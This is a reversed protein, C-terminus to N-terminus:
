DASKSAEFSTMFVIRGAGKTGLTITGEPDQRFTFTPPAETDPYEVKAFCPCHKSNRKCRRKRKKEKETGTKRAPRGSHQCAYMHTTGKSSKRTTRRVLKTVTEREKRTKWLEFAEWNSFHIDLVTFDSCEDSHTNECHVALEINNPLREGCAPCTVFVTKVQRDESPESQTTTAKNHALRRHKRLGGDTFYVKGCLECKVEDLVRYKARKIARRVENVEHESCFHFRRLHAYLNSLLFPGSKCIHCQASSNNM